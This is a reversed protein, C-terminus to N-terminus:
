KCLFYVTSNDNADVKRRLHEGLTDLGYSNAKTRLDERSRFYHLSRAFLRPREHRFIVKELKSLMKRSIKTTAFCSSKCSYLLIYLLSSQRIKGCKEKSNVARIDKTQTKSRPYRTDRFSARNILAAVAQICAYHAGRNRTSICLHFGCIHTYM